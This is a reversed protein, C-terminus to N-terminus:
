LQYLNKCKNLAIVNPKHDVLGNNPETSFVISSVFILIRIVISMFIKQKKM